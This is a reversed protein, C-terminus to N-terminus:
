RFEPFVHGHM